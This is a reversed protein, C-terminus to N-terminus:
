METFTIKKVYTGNKVREFLTQNSFFRQATRTPMGAQMAIEKGQAWSFFSPVQDFVNRQLTTLVPLRRKRDEKRRYWRSGEMRDLLLNFEDLTYFGEKLIQGCSKWVDVGKKYSFGLDGFDNYINGGRQYILNFEGQKDCPTSFHHTDSLASVAGRYFGLEELRLTIEDKPQLLAMANAEEIELLKRYQDPYKNKILQRYYDNIAM